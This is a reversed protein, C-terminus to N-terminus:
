AVTGGAAPARMTTAAHVQLHIHPGTGHNAAYAVVKAPRTPDYSWLKNVEVAVYGLFAWRSAHDRTGKWTLDVARYPPGSAHIGSTPRGTAIAIDAEEAASRHVSTIYCPNDDWKGLALHLIGRLRVDADFLEMLQRPTEFIVQPM